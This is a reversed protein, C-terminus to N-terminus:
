PCANRGRQVTCSGMVQPHPYDYHCGDPENDDCYDAAVLICQSPSSDYYHFGLSSAIILTNHIGYSTVKYSCVVLCNSDCCFPPPYLLPELHACCTVTTKAICNTGNQEVQAQCDANLCGAAAYVVCIAFPRYMWDM